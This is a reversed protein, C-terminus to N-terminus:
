YLDVFLDFKIELIDKVKILGMLATPPEIGFDCLQITTAGIVRYSNDDVKIAQLPILVSRSTCVITIDTVAEFDVWRDCDSLDNCELNFVDKLDITIKPYDDAQLAKHLDKNIAKAGCDLQKIAIKLETDEFHIIASKQDLKYKLQGKKFYEKSTCCFSNVNTKGNVELSSSSQIQFTTYLPAPEETTFIFSSQVFFLIALLLWGKYTTKFKM